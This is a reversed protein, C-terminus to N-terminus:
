SKKSAAASNKGITFLVKTIAYFDRSVAATSTTVRLPHLLCATKCNRNEATIINIISCSANEEFL